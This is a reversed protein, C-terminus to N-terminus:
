RKKSTKKKAAQKRAIKDEINQSRNHVGYILSTVGVILMYAGFFRIFTTVEFNGANLIVVGIICGCAGALVRIFRDTPDVTSLAGHFIDIIGSIITYISLIMVCSTLNNKSFFLLFVAAIIDVLADVVANFWGHKKTSSYLAGVADVIGMFLLLVSVVAITTEISQMSGFLAFIGFIAALSGRILFVLWHKDIFKRNIKAM